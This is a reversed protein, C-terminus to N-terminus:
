NLHQALILPEVRIEVMEGRRDGALEATGQREDVWKEAEAKTAFPGAIEESHADDGDVVRVIM